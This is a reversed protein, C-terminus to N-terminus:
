GEPLEYIAKYKSAPYWAIPSRFRCGLWFPGEKLILNSYSVLRDAALGFNKYNFPERNQVNQNSIRWRVKAAIYAQNRISLFYYTGNFIILKHVPGLAQIVGKKTM